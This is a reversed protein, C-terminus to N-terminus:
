TKRNGFANTFSFCGNNIGMLILVSDCVFIRESVRPRKVHILAQSQKPSVNKKDVGQRREEGFM